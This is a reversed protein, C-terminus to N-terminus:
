HCIDFLVEFLRKFHLVVVRDLGVNRDSVLVQKRIDESGVFAAFHHRIILARHARVLLIRSLLRFPDLLDVRIVIRDDEVVLVFLHLLELLDHFSDSLLWGVTSLEEVVELFKLRPGFEETRLATADKQALPLLVPICLGSEQCQDDHGTQQSKNCPVTYPEIVEPLKVRLDDLRIQVRQLALDKDILARVHVVNLRLLPDLLHWHVLFSELRGVDARLSVLVEVVEIILNVVVAHVIGSLPGPAVSGELKVLHVLLSM